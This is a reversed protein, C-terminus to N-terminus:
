GIHVNLAMEKVCNLATKYALKKLYNKRIFNIPDTKLNKKLIIIVQGGKGCQQNLLSIKYINDPESQILLCLAKIL